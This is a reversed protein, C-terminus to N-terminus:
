LKAERDGRLGSVTLGAGRGTGVLVVERNRLDHAKGLLPLASVM